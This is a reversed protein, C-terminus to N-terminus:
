NLITKTKEMRPSFNLQQRETDNKCVHIGLYRVCNKVPINYLSKVNSQYLCLIECKSKNLKLGSAISFDNILSIANEIQDKNKLFLVTDDALQTVRIEKGFISLGKIVPSNLIHLSLLEAVILFLFPSIPCGQRVSRMVPFRKTTNPYLIVCSDINKYFMEITSVFNPGFGFTKLAKFLFYHEVTDFAKYFDLFVILSDDDINDSYDLLDFILRINSSIHRNTMFGTQTEAIIEDLNKKLRKAYVLSIIKYDINLLTIPRWNEIVLLDKDPKPILTIIGQKMSTSMEKGDLCEKFLELLPDVIIDWFQLYFEVSLGDNGPSKGKKMSRIAESIESKTIPRECNTKFNESITPAFNKVSEIFRDCDNINCNSKYIDKYFSGVHKSIDLYNTTINNDIKLASINNRRQNRKELAFFYSSNREGLELWKAKSRIFAGKAINIYANDIEEKLRKLKIEEDDSLADKKM